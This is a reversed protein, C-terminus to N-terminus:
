RRKARQKPFLSKIIPGIIPVNAFDFTHEKGQSLGLTPSFPQMTPNIMEPDLGTTDVEAMYNGVKVPVPKSTRAM